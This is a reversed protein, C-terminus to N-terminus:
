KQDDVSSRTVKSRTTWLMGPALFRHFIAQELMRLLYLTYGREM